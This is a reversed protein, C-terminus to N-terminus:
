ATVEKSGTMLVKVEANTLEFSTGSSIQEIYPELDIGDANLSVTEDAPNTNITLETTGSEISTGSNRYVGLRFLDNDNSTFGVLKRVKLSLSLMIWRKFVHGTMRPDPDRLPWLRVKFPSPSIAYRDGTAINNAFASVTIDNAAVATIERAVGANDGNTFYLLCGVMDAHFTAGSDLVSTKDTGNSTTTGNLTYSPDFGWMTGSGSADVDPVVILGTATIFYARVDKGDVTDPGSTCGKFNAGELINSSQTSHSIQLIEADGPHLFYSTNMLADYGSKLTSGDGAWDDFLLRDVASIQGMSGDSGNLLTLGLGTVMLISNGMVHAAEKGILGREKHLAVFQLPNTTGAKFVHIVANPTLIFMGDGANLYRLPRGEENSGRRDNFTTFYEASTQESSSHLTDIGGRTAIDQAMFTIGQYRGITGSTPPASIIDTEPNYQTQFPLAEDHLTGITINLADWEASNTDWNPNKDITQEKYFIAGTSTVSNGLDITRFVDVTDFLADFDDYDSGSVVSAHAPVSLIAKCHEEPESTSTGGGLLTASSITMDGGTEAVTSALANGAAGRDKAELFVTTAGATAYVDASTDGNVADALATCHQAVTAGAAAPITVDSGADIYEYTRSGLTFIDGAVMLGSDSGGSNFTITTTAKTTKMHDLTITVPDSLSSYIGRASDYFRWAIQFSGNGRLNYASDVSSTDDDTLATLTADFAGPGMDVTSLAAGSWYVTKPTKTDVTVYLFGEHTACDMELSSTIGNGSQAWIQHAAWTSGDLTYILTVEENANDNAKDWRIVFGRYTNSTGRKHFTVYKFFSPGDYLDINGMGSVGDIDIVEKMGFFKRLCGNYRGDVGVLEGFSGSPVQNEPVSKNMFPGTIGYSIYERTRMVM